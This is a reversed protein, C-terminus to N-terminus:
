TMIPQDTYGGGGGPDYPDIGGGGGGGGGGSSGGGSGVGGGSGTGGGLTSTNNKMETVKGYRATVTQTSMNSTFYVQVYYHWNGGEGPRDLYKMPLAGQWTDNAMGSGNLQVSQIVTGGDTGRSRVLQVVAVFSGSANHTFTGYANFDIDIPSDAKEVGIWVGHIRTPTTNNLTITAANYAAETNSVTNNVLRTHNISGTVLLDGYIEVNSNFRVRGNALSMIKVPSGGGPAVFAMEDAVFALSGFSGNNNATIGTIHGNSNLAISWRANLGNTVQTLTTISATNGGVTNQVNQITQSLASDANIRATREDVVSASVNGISTDIGSLRTGLTWGPGVEVRNLDLTFVSQNNRFAGLVAFQQAIAGDANARATVENQIATSNQGVQVALSQRAQTEAQDAAVRANTETLVAAAIDGAIKTALATRQAAEASVANTRATVETAIAATNDDTKAGVSDIRQSLSQDQSARTTAESTVLAQANTGATAVMQNLRQTFSETPGVLVKNLDLLFATNSANKAGLLSLTQALAGDANSRATQEATISSDFGNARAVLLDIRDAQASVADARATAESIIKAANDNAKATIASLRQGLSENTGVRVTNLDLLFANNSGNKAGILALTSALAVDGEVRQQAENQIVTAIGTGDEFNVLSDVLDTITDVRLELGTTRATTNAVIGDLTDTRFAQDALAFSQDLIREASLDISALADRFRNLADDGLESTLILEDMIADPTTVVGLHDGLRVQARDLAGTYLDDLEQLRYLNQLNARNLEDATLNAGNKFDVIATSIPTERRIQLVSNEAPPQRLRIRSDSVWEFFPISGNLTVRIHTRDLFPVALDFEQQGGTVIYQARTQHSM